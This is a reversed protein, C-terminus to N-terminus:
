SGPRYVFRWDSYRATGEFAANRGEFGGTKVPRADSRSYVGAIGGGPGRVLGWERAGTLPDAYLRRLHRRVVPLRRDDLLAELTEPYRRAGGPTGEYYRGIAERFQNGVFLLERERERQASTSAIEGAAALGAALVAVAILLGLYTFGGAARMATM